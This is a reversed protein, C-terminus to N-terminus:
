PNFRYKASVGVTLPRVTYGEIVTNLEPRQIITRDDNLNKAYLSVDYSETELGVSANLVGYSPNYYDSNGIQYSGNSRGTWDYDAHVTVTMDSSLPYDYQASVTLSQYPVDILRQGVAVTQANNTRTISAHQYAATLGLTLDPIPRYSAEFEGGYIEADGVNLTVYYGCTPLYVQQQINSWQTYYGAANISLRNDDLRNKTGVEYTWLKDSAFKLPDSKIGLSNFDSNCVTTPGFPAPSPEPGGLRFGKSVSGYVNTDPNVDYTLTFKPTFAYSHAQQNFPNFNGIQYFGYTYFNVVDRAYLYRAGGTFHLDPLLDIDTQGFIAYQRENYLKEDAEDVNDPFLKTIGPAGFADNIPSQELPVGYISKFAANLGPIQQFNTNHIWQQSYYLGVVWKVPLEGEEPKHSALRFEQSIQSYRTTYRVPSRLNAIISDDAKVNPKFGPYNPDVGGPFLSLVPDLFAEAFLTSNYYTGDQQRAFDRWFYGSVSTFDAFGFDHNVTLSPLFMTDRGYEDVAKDQKWLGLAPYFAANDDAKDRQFFVGPTITTDDGLLLKGTTRLMLNAEQNAGSDLLPGPRGEIRAYHDIYGSDSSYSVSTRIAAVGPVIPVNLVGAESYNVGGHVTGSLDSQVEGNFNELDPQKTVFKITGGMSSAGYLTGQPGRLVEIRDIDFLKPQASGDFFNKVTMSVDDLYIGVTASGSTSSVGRITINDLGESAGISNFSVGPVARAIDDYNAIQKAQLDYGSIASISIPINKLNESRKQATVVVEQLGADAAANPPATQACAATGSVAFMLAITSVSLFSQGRFGM